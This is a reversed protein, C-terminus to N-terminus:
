KCRREHLASFMNSGAVSVLLVFLVKEWGFRYEMASCVVVICAAVPNLLLLSWRSVYYSSVLDVYMSSSLVVHHALGSAASGSAQM